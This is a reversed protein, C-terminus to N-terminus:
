TTGSVLCRYFDKSFFHNTSVGVVASFIHNTSVGVVASFIHNTSVGVVASFIHNTSLRVVASQFLTPPSVLWPQSSIERKRNGAACISAHV